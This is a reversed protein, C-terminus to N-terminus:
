KTVDELKKLKKKMIEDVNIVDINCQVRKEYWFYWYPTTSGCIDM